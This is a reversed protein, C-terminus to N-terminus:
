RFARYYLTLLDELAVLTDRLPQTSVMRM